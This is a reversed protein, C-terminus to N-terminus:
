KPKNLPSTAILKTNVTTAISLINSIDKGTPSRIEYICNEGNGKYYLEGLNNIGCGIGGAILRIKDFETKDITYEIPLNNINIHKDSVSYSHGGSIKSYGDQTKIFFGSPHSLLSKVADLYDLELALDLMEDFEKSM